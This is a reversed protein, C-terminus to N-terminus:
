SMASRVLRGPGVRLGPGLGPADGVRRRSGSFRLGGRRRPEAEYGALGDDGVADVAVEGEVFEAALRLGLGRGPTSVGAHLLERERRCSVIPSCSRSSRPARDRPSGLRAPARLRAVGLQDAASGSARGARPRRPAGRGLHRRDRRGRSLGRLGRAPCGVGALAETDPLVRFCHRPNSDRREVESRSLQPEHRSDQHGPHRPRALGSREGHERAAPISNHVGVLRAPRDPDLVGRLGAAALPEPILLSDLPQQGLIAFSRKEYRTTHAILTREISRKSATTRSLAAGSVIRSRM